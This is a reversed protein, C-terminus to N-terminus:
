GHLRGEMLDAIERLGQVCSKHSDIKPNLSSKKEYIIQMNGEIFDAWARIAAIDMEIDDRYRTNTNM